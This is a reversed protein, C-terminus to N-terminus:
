CVAVQFYHSENDHNCLACCLRIENAATPGLYSINHASTPAFPTDSPVTHCFLEKFFAKAASFLESFIGWGLGRGLLLFGTGSIKVPSSAKARVVYM